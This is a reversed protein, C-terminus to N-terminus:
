KIGLERKKAALEEEYRSPLKWALYEVDDLNRLLAAKSGEQLYSRFKGLDLLFKLFWVGGIVSLLLGLPLLVFVWDKLDDLGTATSIYIGVFTLILGLFLISFSLPEVREVLMPKAM